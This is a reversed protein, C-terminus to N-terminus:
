LMALDREMAQDKSHKHHPSHSRQMCKEKVQVVEEEDSESGELEQRRQAYEEELERLKKKRQKAVLWRRKEAELDLALVRNKAVKYICFGDDSLEAPELQLIVDLQEREKGVGQKPLKLKGQLATKRSHHRKGHKADAHENFGLAETGAEKGQKEMKGNEEFVEEEDVGEDESGEENSGVVTNM